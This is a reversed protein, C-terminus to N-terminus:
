SNRRTVLINEVYFPGQWQYGMWFRVAGFERAVALWAPNINMEHTGSASAGFLTFRATATTSTIDLNVSLTFPQDRPFRGFRVSSDDIRVDGEPMFDLHLFSPSSLVNGRFSEFQVTVAGTGSPIYLSALLSYNGAGDFRSFNCRMVTEPSPPTLHSLRVWKTAALGPAPADVVTITGAGPALSVTGTAQNAAPTSGATDSDFNAQLVTTSNCATALLLLWLVAGLRLVVRLSGARRTRENVCDISVTAALEM